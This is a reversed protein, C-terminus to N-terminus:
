TILSVGELMVCLSSLLPTRLSTLLWDADLVWAHSMFPRVEGSSKAPFWSSEPSPFACYWVALVYKDLGPQSPQGREPANGKFIRIKGVPEERPEVWSKARDLIYQRFYFYGIIRNSQHSFFGNHSMLM